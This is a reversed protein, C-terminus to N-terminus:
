SEIKHYLRALDALSLQEARLRTEELSDVRQKGYVPALNNRLTKRKQRFCAAAFRLFAARDVIGLDSGADRPDLRIVASDVKPPPRFATRPVTFLIEPRSYLQAQVTLYGFARSGPSAALRAAVEAQVMFVSREWAQGMAFTKELIPSTIYYPLNGAVVARGWASLDTKLVDGDVLVFRGLDIPERFKQRLYHVLYPDVEIAVVKKALSLLSETLAGKGPGIEIVVPAHENCAALAIRELISKRALFHQGLRRGM